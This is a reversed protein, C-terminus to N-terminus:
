AWASIGDETTSVDDETTADMEDTDDRTLDIWEHINNESIHTSFRPEPEAQELQPLGSRMGHIAKAGFHRYTLARLMKVVQQCESLNNQYVADTMIWDERPFTGPIKMGPVNLGNEDVAIGDALGQYLVEVDTVVWTMRSLLSVVLFIFLERKKDHALRYSMVAKKARIVDTATLPEAPRFMLLGDAKLTEMPICHVGHGKISGHALYEWTLAHMRAFLPGKFRRLAYSMAVTHYIEPKRDLKKTDIITMFKEGDGSLDAFYISRFASFAWSSFESAFSTGTLHAGMHEALDEFSFDAVKGHVNAPEDLDDPFPQLFAHPTISSKTNLNPHGGGSEASWGRFLFRPTHKRTDLGTLM